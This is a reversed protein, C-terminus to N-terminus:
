QKIVKKVEKLGQASVHIFYLGRNLHELALVQTVEDTTKQISLHEITKGSADMLDVTVEGTIQQGLKVQVKDTTPNPYVTWNVALEDMDKPSALEETYESKESALPATANTATSLTTTNVQHSGINFTQKYAISNKWFDVKGVDTGFSAALNLGKNIVSSTSKLKYSTLSPLKTPDGITVGSGPNTFGPNVVLGKAVGNIKEQGTVQRWKEITSYTTGTYFFKLAAGSSWYSNGEFRIDTPAQVRVVEMGGTTQVINNRVKANTIYGSMVYIGKPSGTSAPSVYVTNNYISVGQIGGGSSTSWLQIGAYGNKRGDNESINYRIVNNKMAPATGYQALLYGAGDNNHSYNYQMISNTCGGDFDFGGGDKTTGTRNHHAENNQIILNNCKYGWIGVPGANYYANLWGNNYAECYEITAGDVGGLMIGSGTHKNKVDALGANNYVKNRGIYFNKHGLNAQAFSSIGANGNDHVKSNTIRVNDYGSAQNNSGILIGSERFGYVEVSDINIYNLRTSALVMYFYIGAMESTTRGSGKFRLRNIKFGATNNAYIGYSTGSNIIAWGKGYSGIVIPASATGKDNSDFYLSGSFTKGGEFLVVDGPYLKKSNVMSISSWASSISTGTKYNSGTSSVYYTTANSVFSILLTLFFIITSKTSLTHM